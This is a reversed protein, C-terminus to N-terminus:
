IIDIPTNFFNEAELISNDSHKISYDGIKERRLSALYAGCGLKEGVDNALSRIYTGKSCHVEFDVFPLDIKKIEFSYISVPRSAIEVEQGKRAYEYLRKGEKQIASFVPPKQMIDGLFAQFAQRLNNETIHLYEQPNTEETETDFSPTQVGLKITGSYVKSTDQIESIKKTALGVCVILLGTAKPDLTGAHGVKFKKLKFSKRIKWKIKNVVDFSTWNLPKDILFTRGEKLEELNYM